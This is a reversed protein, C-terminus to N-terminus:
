VYQCHLQYISTVIRLNFSRLLQVDLNDCYLLKSFNLYQSLMYICISWIQQQLGNVNRTVSWIKKSIPTENEASHKGSNDKDGNGTRGVALITHSLLLSLSPFLLDLDQSHLGAPSTYQVCACPSFLQWPRFVVSSQSSTFCRIRRAGASLSRIVTRGINSCCTVSVRWSRGICVVAAFHNTM